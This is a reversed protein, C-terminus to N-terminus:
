KGGNIITKQSSIAGRSDHIFAELPTMSYTGMSFSVTSAVAGTSVNYITQDLTIYYVNKEQKIRYGNVEPVILWSCGVAAAQKRYNTFAPGATLLCGPVLVRYQDSLAQQMYWFEGKLPNPLNNQLPAIYVKAGRPLKEASSVIKIEGSDLARQREDYYKKIALDGYEALSHPQDATAPLEWLVERGFQKYGGVLTQLVGTVPDGSIVVRTLNLIGAFQAAFASNGVAPAGFTIVEIQDPLVGMSILRAGVLTAAAGGLSHGALYIKRNKDALLLESLLKPEGKADLMKTTLVAQVFQHYGRHVKPEASPVNEKLVNAEFEELTSGAFYAKDVKLNIKMDKANETGVIALVYIERGDGTQKKAVLVRADVGGSTQEYHEIKWGDQELYRNALSGYRDSYVAMCARVADYVKNAQNYDEKAGALCLGSMWVVMCCSLVVLRRM